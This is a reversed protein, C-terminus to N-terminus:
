RDTIEPQPRSSRIIQELEISTWETIDALRVRDLAMFGTNACAKILPPKIQLALAPTCLFRDPWINKAPGTM